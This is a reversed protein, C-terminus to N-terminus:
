PDDCSGGPRCSRGDDCGTVSCGEFGLGGDPTGFRLGVERESGERVCVEAVQTGLGPVAATVTYCGAPVRFKWEGAQGLDFALPTGDLSVTGRALRQGGPARLAIELTATPRGSRRGVEVVEAGRVVADIRENRYRSILALLEVSGQPVGQLEFRGDPGPQTALEPHGVVSVSAGAAAGVLTGRVVGLTLPQNLLEGGCGTGVTLGTVMGAIRLARM